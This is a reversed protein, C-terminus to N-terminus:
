STKLISWTRNSRSFELVFYGCNPIPSPLKLAPEVFHLVKRLVGGHTSIGVSKFPLESLQSEVKSLVRAVIQRKTEGGAFSIDWTSEHSSRWDELLKVGFKARIEAPKLGEARGYHGERLEILPLVSLGLKKAVTNATESARVLDSTFIFEIKENILSDGLEIAQKRGLANLPIDSHGQWRREVNWDTEGHRWWYTLIKDEQM